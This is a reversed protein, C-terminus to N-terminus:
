RMSRHLRERVGEVSNVMWELLRGVVVELSLQDSSRSANSHALASTRTQTVFAM